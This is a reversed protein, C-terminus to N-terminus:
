LDKEFDLRVGHVSASSKLEFKIHMVVLSISVIFIEKVCIIPLVMIEAYFKPLSQIQQPNCGMNKMKKQSFFFM